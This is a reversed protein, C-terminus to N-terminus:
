DKEVVDRRHGAGLGRRGIKHHRVSDTNSAEVGDGGVRLTNEELISDTRRTCPNM